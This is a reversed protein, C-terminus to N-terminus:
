TAIYKYIERPFDPENKQQIKRIKDSILLKQGKGNVNLKFMIERIVLSHVISELV